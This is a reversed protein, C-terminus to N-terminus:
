QPRVRDHARRDARHGKHAGQRIQYQRLRAQWDGGPSRVRVAHQRQHEVLTLEHDGGVIRRITVRQRCQSEPRLLRDLDHERARSIEVRGDSCMVGEDLVSRESALSLPQKFIVNLRHFRRDLPKRLLLRDYPQYVVQQQVGYLPARRIDVQMRAFVAGIHSVSNVARKHRDPLEIPRKQWGDRGPYFNECGHVDRLMTQRLIARDM